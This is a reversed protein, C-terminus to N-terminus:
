GLIRVGKGTPNNKMLERITLKHKLKESASKSFSLAAVQNNKNFTGTGLVKGPILATENEKINKEIHSLNVAPMKRTSKELHLAIKKWFDTKQKSSHVKLDRILSILEPNTKTIEKKM